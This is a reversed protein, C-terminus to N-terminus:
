KGGEALDTIPDITPRTLEVIFDALAQGKTAKRPEFTIDFMNLEVIWKPKHGAAKMKQLVQKLPQNTYVQINHALFFHRLKHSAMVLALGFKEVLTYRCDAHKLVHSVFHVPIQAQERETLFVVSVAQPSVPIYM